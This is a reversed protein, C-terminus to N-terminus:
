RVSARYRCAAGAASACMHPPSQESATTWGVRVDRELLLKRAARFVEFGSGSTREEVPADYVFFFALERDPDLESLPRRSGEGLSSRAIWGETSLPRLTFGADDTLEVEVRAGGELALEAARPQEGGAGAASRVGREMMTHLIRGRDVPLLADDKCVFFRPVLSTDHELPVGVEYTKSESTLFTVLALLVAIGIANSVIDTLFNLNFLRHM